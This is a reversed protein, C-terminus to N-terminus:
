SERRFVQHLRFFFFRGGAVAVAVPSLFVTVALFMPWVTAAASALLLTFMTQEGTLDKQKRWLFAAVVLFLFFAIVSGIVWEEVTWRKPDIYDFLRKM